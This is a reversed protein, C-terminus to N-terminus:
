YPLKNIILSYGVYVQLQSDFYIHLISV